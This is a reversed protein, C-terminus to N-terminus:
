MAFDGPKVEKNNNNNNDADQEKNEASSDIKSSGNMQQVQVQQQTGGNNAKINTQTSSRMMAGFKVEGGFSPKNNVKGNDLDHARM